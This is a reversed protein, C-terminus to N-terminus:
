PRLTGRRWRTQLGPLTPPIAPRRAPVPRPRPRDRTVSPAGMPRVAPGPRAKDVGSGGQAM